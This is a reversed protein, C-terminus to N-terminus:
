RKRLLTVGHALMITACDVRPDNPLSGLEAIVDESEKKAKDDIVKASLFM